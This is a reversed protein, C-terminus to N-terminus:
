QPAGEKNRIETHHIDQRQTTYNCRLHTYRGYYATNRAICVTNTTVSSIGFATGFPGPMMACMTSEFNKLTALSQCGILAM